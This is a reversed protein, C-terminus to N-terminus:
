ENTKQRNQTGYRGFHRSLRIQELPQKSAIKEFVSDYAPNKIDASGHSSMRKKRNQNGHVVYVVYVVYVVDIDYVVYAVYVVDVVYVDYAVYVVYVSYVVYAVYVVYVVYVVYMGYWFYVVYV